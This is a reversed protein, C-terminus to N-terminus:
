VKGELENKLEKLRELKKQLKLDQQEATEKEKSPTDITYKGLDYSDWLEPIEGEALIKEIGDEEFISDDDMLYDYSDKKDGYLKENAENKKIWDGDISKGKWYYGELGM